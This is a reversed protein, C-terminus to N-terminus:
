SEGPEALKRGVYDIVHQVTSLQVLDEDPIQLDFEEEIEFLLEVTAVSDLGLDDRLKLSPQITARDRGLHEALAAQIREALAPEDM